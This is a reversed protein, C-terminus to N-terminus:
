RSRVELWDGSPVSTTGDVAALLEDGALWAWAEEGAVTTVVVRRYHGTHTGEFEDLLELIAGYRAPDLDALDGLVISSADADVLYPLGGVHHLAKGAVQGPRCPAALHPAMWAEHNWSGPRLTGYLFLPRV